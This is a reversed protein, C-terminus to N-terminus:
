ADNRTPTHLPDFSLDSMMRQYNNMAQLLDEEEMEDNVVSISRAGQWMQVEELVTDRRDELFSGVPPKGGPITFDRLVGPEAGWTEFQKGGGKKQLGQTLDRWIYTYDTDFPQYNLRGNTM